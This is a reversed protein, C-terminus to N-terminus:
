YDSVRSDKGKRDRVPGGAGRSRPRFPCGAGTALMRVLNRAVITDATAGCVGKQPEEGFPDIRCPGMNCNTCCLGLQGYGCQPQQAELREWATEVGEKLGKAIVVQATRDISRKQAMEKMTVKM